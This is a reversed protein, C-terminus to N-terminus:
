LPSTYVEDSLIKCVAEIVLTQSIFSLDAVAYQCSAPIVTRDLYRANQNELNTVRPDCRLKEDLQGSGSDIAYVHAANRKLLCDTFGGTSAGIDACICNSVDLKFSELAAELKMGGRGVFSHEEGTVKIEMSEDVALSTKKIVRGNVTVFGGNILEAARSRSKALGSSFLYVDLRM